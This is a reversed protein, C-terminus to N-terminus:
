RRDNLFRRLEENVRAPQEITGSHGAGGIVVLESGVITRQLNRSIAPPTAVDEEGAIILTPLSVNSLKDAIGTRNTVGTLIRKQGLRTNGLFRQRWLKREEARGPDSMFTRSFLIPLVKDVVSSVGFLFAVLSLIRYKRCKEPTEADANTSILTLSRLLRSDRVAISYADRSNRWPVRWCPSM